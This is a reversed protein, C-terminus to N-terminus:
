GFESSSPHITTVCPCAETYAVRGNGEGNRSRPYSSWWTYLILGPPLLFEDAEHM